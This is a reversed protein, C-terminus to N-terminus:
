DGLQTSNLLFHFPESLLFYRSETLIGKSIVIYKNIGIEIYSNKKWLAIKSLM